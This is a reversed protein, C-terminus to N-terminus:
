SRSPSPLAGDADRLPLKELMSAIRNRQSSPYASLPPLGESLASLIVDRAIPAAATSGGGGHEVVVSVAMLAIGGRIVGFVGGMFRDLLGLGVVAVM